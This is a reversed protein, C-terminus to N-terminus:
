SVELVKKIPCARKNLFFFFGRLVRMAHTFLSTKNLTKRCARFLVHFIERVRVFMLKRYFEKHM